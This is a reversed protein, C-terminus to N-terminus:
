FDESVETTINQKFDTKESESESESEIKTSSNNSRSHESKSSQTKNDSEVNTNSKEDSNHKTSETNNSNDDIIETHNTDEKYESSKESIKKPRNKKHPFTNIASYEAYGQSETANIEDKNTTPAMTSLTVSEQDNYNQNYNIKNKNNIQISYASSELNEEESDVFSYPLNSVRTTRVKKIKLQRIMINLFITKNMKDIVLEVFEAICKGKLKSKVLKMWEEPKIQSDKNTYIHTQSNLDTRLKCIDSKTNDKNTYIANIPKYNFNKLSYKKLIKNAQIYNIMVEDIKDFFEKLKLNSNLDFIIEQDNYKIIDSTELYIFLPDTKGYSIDFVMYQENSIPDNINIKSFNLNLTTQINIRDSM